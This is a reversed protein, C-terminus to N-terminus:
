TMVLVIPLGDDTVFCKAHGASATRIRAAVKRYRKEPGPGSGDLAPAPNSSLTKVKFIFAGPRITESQRGSSIAMRRMCNM